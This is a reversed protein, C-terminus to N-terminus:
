RCPEVKEPGILAAIRTAIEVRRRDVNLAQEQLERFSGTGGSHAQAVAHLAGSLWWWEREVDRELARLKDLKDLAGREWEHERKTGCRIADAVSAFLGESFHPHDISPSLQRFTGDIVAPWM